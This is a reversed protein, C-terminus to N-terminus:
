RRPDPLTVAFQPQPTPLEGADARPGLPKPHRPERVGASGADDGGDDGFRPDFDKTGTAPVPERKPSRYALRRAVKGRRRGKEDAPRKAEDRAM